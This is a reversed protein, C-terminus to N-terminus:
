KEYKKNALKRFNKIRHFTLYNSNHYDNAGGIGDDFATRSLAIIDNDEIAWNAYQFGHHEYDEHQIIVSNVTWNKLDNSSCLALTNRIRDLQKIGKYKKPIYNALTWYKKSKKDYRITFKKSGGPFDVFGNNSDFSITKGDASIKTIAAYEKHQNLTHVRLINLMEGTPSAVANGELWGLFQHDLYTSDQTLLNSQIWNKAQLLDDDKAISITLAKYLGPWKKQVSADEISRWLRGGHAVVPTPATHYKGKLLLGNRENTPTSWTYGGDTSKRIVFNGNAKITGIFYVAGQHVFLESWFQELHAIDKWTKGKDDSRYIVSQNEPTQKGFFDHSALYSGNPLVCLSPSGIYTKNVANKYAVITGPVKNQASALIGQILCALLVVFPKIQSTKM